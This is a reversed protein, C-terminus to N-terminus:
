LLFPILVTQPLLDNEKAARAKTGLHTTVIPLAHVYFTLDLLHSFYFFLLMYAQSISRCPSAQKLFLSCMM